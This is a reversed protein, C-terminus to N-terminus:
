EFHFKKLVIKSLVFAIIVIFGLKALVTIDTLSELLTTGVFGWFYVISLKAILLAFFFKKFDMKSLGAGINISFAPTFPIAMIVVLKSFTIKKIKVLIADIKPHNKLYGYFKNGLGYKCISYSLICGCITAVWSLFFGPLNGFLIMNLAIFLALPLVPIISELVILGFGFAMSLILPESASVEKLMSILDGVIHEM